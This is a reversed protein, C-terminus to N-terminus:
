ATGQSGVIRLMDAAFDAYLDGLHAIALLAAFVAEHRQDEPLAAIAMKTTDLHRRMEQIADELETLVPRSGM